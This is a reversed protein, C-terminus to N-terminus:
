AHRTTYSTCTIIVFHAKSSEKILGQLALKTIKELKM